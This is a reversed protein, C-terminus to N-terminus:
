ESPERPEPPLWYGDPTAMTAHEVDFTVAARGAATVRYPIPSNRERRKRRQKENWEEAASLEDPFTCRIEDAAAKLGDCYSASLGASESRKVIRNVMALLARKEHSTM